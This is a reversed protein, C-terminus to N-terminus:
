DLQPTEAGALYLEIIPRHTASLDLGLVEDRPVLRLERTEASPALTAFDEVEATFAISIVRYANGDSYQIIRTPDSFVGFLELRSVELATEETIERSIADTASEDEEVRGGILAWVAPDQRHDLLLRGESEILAVVGVSPPHTPRPANPDRFFFGPM